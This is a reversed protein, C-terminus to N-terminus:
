SNLSNFHSANFNLLTSLNLDAIGFRVDNQDRKDPVVVAKMLASKASLLGYFSDEFALCSWPEVGLYKAANIYVAPHPKAYEVDLASFVESFHKDISFHRILELIYSRPSSSAIVVPLQRQHFFNLAQTVGPLLTGKQKVLTIVNHLIEEIIKEFPKKSEWPHKSYWYEVVQAVGLGTTQYTMEHTLAFGLENFVKIEAEKWWPETDILTGDLDFVVGKIM